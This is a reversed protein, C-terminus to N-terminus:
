SMKGPMQPGFFGRIASIKGRFLSDALVVKEKEWFSFM